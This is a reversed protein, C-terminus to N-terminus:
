FPANSIVHDLDAEARALEWEGREVEELQALALALGDKHRCPKAAPKYTSWECDCALDGDPAYVMRHHKLTGDPLHKHLDIVSFRFGGDDDWAYAHRVNYLDGYLELRATWAGPRDADFVPRTIWRATSPQTSKRVPLRSLLVTM